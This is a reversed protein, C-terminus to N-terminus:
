VLRLWHALVFDTVDFEETIGHSTPDGGMEAIQEEDLVLSYEPATWATLGSFAPVPLQTEIALYIGKPLILGPDIELDSDAELSVQKKRDVTM